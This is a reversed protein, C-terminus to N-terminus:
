DSSSVLLRMELERRSVLLLGCPVVLSRAEVRQRRRVLSGQRAASIADFM